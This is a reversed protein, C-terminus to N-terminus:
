FTRFSVGVSPATRQTSLSATASLNTLMINDPNGGIRSPYSSGQSLALIFNGNLIYPLASSNMAFESDISGGSDSVNVGQLLTRSGDNTRISIYTYSIGAIRPNIAISVKCKNKATYVFMEALGTEAANSAVFAGSMKISYNRTNVSDYSIIPSISDLNSPDVQSLTVSSWGTSGMSVIEDYVSPSSYNGRYIRVVYVGNTLASTPVSGYLRGMSGASLAIAADSFSISSDLVFSSSTKSFIFNDRSVVAYYDDSDYQFFEFKLTM